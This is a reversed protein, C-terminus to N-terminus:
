DAGAGEANKRDLEELVPDRKGQDPEHEMSMGLNIAQMAKEMLLKLDRPLLTLALQEATVPVAKPDKLLEGQNVLVALLWPMHVVSGIQAKAQAKQKEAKVKDSDEENITPGNFVEAMEELGGYKETVELLAALTFVLTYGRGGITVSVGGEYM